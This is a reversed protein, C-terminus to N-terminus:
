ISQLYKRKCYDYNPGSLSSTCYLFLWRGNHGFDCFFSELYELEGNGNALAEAIRAREAKTKRSFHFNVIEQIIPMKESAPLSVAFCRYNGSADFYRVSIESKCFDSLRLYVRTGQTRQGVSICNLWGNLTKFNKRRM